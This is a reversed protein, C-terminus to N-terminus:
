QYAGCGLLLEGFREVYAKKREVAKTVPNVWKYELWAHGDKSNAVALINKILYQGDADRMELVNKGVLRNNGGNALEIGDGNAGFAFIYLDRDVFQGKPDNFATFAKDKGNKKLYDGAKKVLAVAEEATGKDEAYSATVYLTSSIALLLCILLRKM